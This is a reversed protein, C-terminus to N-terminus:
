EEKTNFTVRYQWIGDSLYRREVIHGGFKPKRLDRLRASLSAEPADVRAAIQSLTRWAGDAMLRKVAGLQLALRSQDRDREYTKGDFDIPIQTMM